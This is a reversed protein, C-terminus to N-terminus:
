LATTTVNGSNDVQVRWYTGDDSRVVLGQGSAAVVVDGDSTHINGSLQLNDGSVTTAVITDCDVDTCNVELANVVDCNVGTVTVDSFAVATSDTHYHRPM